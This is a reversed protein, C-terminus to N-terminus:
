WVRSSVHRSRGGQVGAGDRRPPARHRGGAEAVFTTTASCASTTATPHRRATGRRDGPGPRARGATPSASGPMSSLGPGVEDCQTAASSSTSRPSCTARRSATGASSRSGARHSCSGPAAEPSTAITRQRERATACARRADLRVRKPTPGIGDVLTPLLHLESRADRDGVFYLSSSGYRDATRSSRDRHPRARDLDLRRTRDANSVTASLCVLQVRPAPPPHDGRGVGARPLHGPPLPGRRARRGPASGRLAPANGYIM